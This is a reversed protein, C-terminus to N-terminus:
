FSLQLERPSSRNNFRLWILHDKESYHARELPANDLTIHRPEGSPCYLLVVAPTDEVGEVVLKLTKPNNEQVLTKCASAIVQPTGNAVRGLDVLFYRSGPNIKVGDHVVLESDFLNIFRGPIVLPTQDTSEDLGAAVLFKGRRLVLHNAERWKGGAAVLTARVKEVFVRESDLGATISVPNQKLWLV